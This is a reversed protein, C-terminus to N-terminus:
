SFMEEEPLHGMAVSKGRPLVDNHRACEFRVFFCSEDKTNYGFLFLGCLIEILFRFNAFRLYDRASHPFENDLPDIFTFSIVPDKVSVTVYPISM